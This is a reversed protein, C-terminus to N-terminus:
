KDKQTQSIENLKHKDGVWHVHTQALEPLQHHVPFGPMSCDKPDCNAFLGVHSFLQVSSVSHGGPENMDDRIASNGEKLLSFLIGSHIGWM